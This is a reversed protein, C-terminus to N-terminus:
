KKTDLVSIECDDILGAAVDLMLVELTNTRSGPSKVFSATIKDDERQVQRFLQSGNLEIRFDYDSEKGQDTLVVSVIILVESESTTPFSLTISGGSGGSM